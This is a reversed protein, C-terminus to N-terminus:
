IFIFYDNRVKNVNEGTTMKELQINPPLPVDSSAPLMETINRFHQYSCIGAESGKERDTYYM